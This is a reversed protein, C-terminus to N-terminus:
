TKRSGKNSDNDRKELIYKKFNNIGIIVREYRDVWEDAKSTAIYQRIQMKRVHNQTEGAEKRATNMGKIKDNYYYSSYGEAINDAM